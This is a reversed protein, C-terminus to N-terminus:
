SMRGQNAQFEFIVALARFPSPTRFLIQRLCVNYMEAVEPWISEAYYLPMKCSVVGQEKDVSRSDRFHVQLLTM